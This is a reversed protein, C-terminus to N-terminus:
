TLCLQNAMPKASNRPARTPSRLRFRPGDIAADETVVENKRKGAVAVTSVHSYRRLGNSM